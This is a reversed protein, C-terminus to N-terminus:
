LSVLDCSDSHLQVTCLAFAVCPHKELKWFPAWVTSALHPHLFTKYLYVHATWVLLDFRFMDLPLLLLLLLLMSMNWQCTFMQHFHTVSEGNYNSGNKLIWINLVVCLSWCWGKILPYYCWAVIWTIQLYLMDFRHLSSHGYLYIAKHTHSINHICAAHTHPPFFCSDWEASFVMHHLFAAACKVRATPSPSLCAVVEM